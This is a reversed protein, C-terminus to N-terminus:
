YGGRHNNFADKATTLESVIYDTGLTRMRYRFVGKVPAGCERCFYGMHAGSGGVYCPIAYHIGFIHLFKGTLRSLSPM